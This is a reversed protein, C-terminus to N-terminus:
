SPRSKAARWAISLTASKEADYGDRAKLNSRGAIKARGRRVRLAGGGRALDFDLTARECHLTFSMNFGDACCGAARPMVAPGGPYIINRSSTTM